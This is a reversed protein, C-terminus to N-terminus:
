AIIDTKTTIFLQSKDEKKFKKLIYINLYSVESYMFGLPLDVTPSKFINDKQAWDNLCSLTNMGLHILIGFINFFTNLNQGMLM